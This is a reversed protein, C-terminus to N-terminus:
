EPADARGGSAGLARGIAGTAASGFVASTIAAIPDVSEGDLSAPLTSVLLGVAAGLLPAIWNPGMDVRWEGTKTDVRYSMARRPSAKVKPERIPPTPSEDARAESASSSPMVGRPEAAANAAAAAQAQMRELARRMWPPPRQPRSAM